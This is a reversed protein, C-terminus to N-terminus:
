AVGAVPRRAEFLVRRLVRLALILCGAGSLVMVVPLLWRVSLYSIPIAVVVPVVCSCAQLLGRVLEAADGRLDRPARVLLIGFSTVRSALVAVATGVAGFATMLPMLLVVLTVVGGAAAEVAV